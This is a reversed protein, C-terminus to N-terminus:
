LTWFLLSEGFKMIHVKNIHIKNHSDRIINHFIGNLHSHKGHDLCVVTGKYQSGPYKHQFIRNLTIQTSNFGLIDVLDRSEQHLFIELFIDKNTPM